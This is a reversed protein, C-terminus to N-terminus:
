LLSPVDAAGVKLFLSPDHYDQQPTVKFGLSVSRLNSDSHEGQRKGSWGQSVGPPWEARM